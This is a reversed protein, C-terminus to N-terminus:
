TQYKAIRLTMLLLIKILEVTYRIDLMINM